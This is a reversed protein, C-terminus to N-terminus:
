DRAPACRDGNNYADLEQYLPEGAKWAATRAKVGSGVPGNSAMWADAATITSAICSSNNGILVNLKASVLSRFMTVTKDGDSLGMVALAQEKSYTVGGITIEDVPWAEPHNKWYGPTGTGPSSVPMKWFGFDITDNNGSTVTITVCSSNLVASGDSDVADNAGQDAPSPQFGLPIGACVTYTGSCLNGFAYQGAANTTASGSSTGSLSVPVGAIPAEGADQIGNNNLDNWVFNGISAECVIPQVFGFDITLDQALGWPQGIDTPTVLTGTPDNSDVASDGGAAILTPQLGDPSEVRVLYTLECEPPQSRDGANTFTYYGSSDTLTTKLVTSGDPSLLLVRVGPIGPEGTDQVGNRNMDLWVFDGIVATCAFASESSALGIAITAL